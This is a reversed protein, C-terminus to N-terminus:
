RGGIERAVRDRIDVLLNRTDAPSLAIQDRMEAFAATIHDKQEQEEAFLNWFIGEMYVVTPIVSPESFDMVVFNAVQLAAYMGADFRVIQITIHDLEAMARLHEIQDIVIQPGGIMRRLANEQFIVHLKLPDSGTLREQRKLRVALLEAIHDPAYTPNLGSIVTQAYEPTQLLGPVFTSEYNRMSLAASEFDTYMRYHAGVKHFEQWWGRRKADRAMQILREREARDISYIKALESVDRPLPVQQGSEIRSLKAASFSDAFEEHIASSVQELTMQSGARLARLAASLELRRLTPSADEGTAAM